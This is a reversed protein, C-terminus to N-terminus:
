GPGPYPRVQLHRDSGPRRMAHALGLESRACLGLRCKEDRNRSRCVRPLSVAGCVPALSACVGSRSRCVLSRSLWVCPLSVPVCVPALGACSSPRALALGVQGLESRACPRAACEFALLAIRIVFVTLGFRLIRPVCFRSIRPTVSDRFEQCASLSEKLSRCLFASHIDWILSGPCLTVAVAAAYSPVSGLPDAPSSAQPAVSSSASPCPALM